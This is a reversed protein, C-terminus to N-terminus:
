AGPKAFQGPNAEFRDKCEKSCFYYQRGAYESKDGAKTPDVGTGCVVDREMIPRGPFVEVTPVRRPARQKDLHLTDAKM